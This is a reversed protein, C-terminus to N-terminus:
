ASTRRFITKNIPIGDARLLREVFPGDLTSLHAAEERLFRMYREEHSHLAHYTFHSFNTLYGADMLRKQLLTLHAAPGRVCWWMRTGVVEFPAPLKPPDEQWLVQGGTEDLVKIAMAMATPEAFHTGSIHTRDWCSMIDARGYLVSIPWGNGMAKGACTLDPIVGSVGAAGQMHLRFGSIVEDFILVAGVETCRARLATLFDVDMGQLPHPELIVAAVTKDVVAIQDIVRSRRITLDRVAYPVGEQESTLFPDSWGHYDGFDVILDRGTFVRAQRVAATTADTGTKLFRMQEAWPIRSSLYEALALENRHPLPLTMPSATHFYPYVHGTVLAGLGATMDIWERDGCHVFCHDASDIWAPGYGRCFRSRSKSAVQTGQPILKEHREVDNM